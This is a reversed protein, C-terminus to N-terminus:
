RQLIPKWRFANSLTTRNAIQMERFVYSGRNLKKLAKKFGDDRIGFTRMWIRELKNSLLLHTM